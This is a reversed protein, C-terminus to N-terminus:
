RLRYQIFYQWGYEARKLRTVNILGNVSVLLAFWADGNAEQIVGNCGIASNGPYPCDTLNTQSFCLAVDRSVGPLKMAKESLYLSGTFYTGAPAWSYADFIKMRLKDCCLAWGIGLLLSATGVLLAQWGPLTSVDSQTRFCLYLIRGALLALSVWALLRLSVLRASLVRPRVYGHDEPIFREENHSTQTM